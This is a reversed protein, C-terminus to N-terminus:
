NRPLTARNKSVPLGRALVLKRSWEWKLGRKTGSDLKFLEGIREGEVWCLVGDAAEAVVLARRRAAPIKRNVFRDQLKVPQAM